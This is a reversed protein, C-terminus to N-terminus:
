NSEATKEAVVDLYCNGSVSVKWRDVALVTGKLVRMLLKSPAERFEVVVEDGVELGHNEDWFELEWTHSKTPVDEGSLWAARSLWVGTQPLLRNAEGVLRQERRNGGVAVAVPHTLLDALRARADTQSEATEQVRGSGEVLPTINWLGDTRREIRGLPSGAPSKVVGRQCETPGLWEVEPIYDRQQPPLIDLTSLYYRVAPDNDQTLFQYANALVSNATANGIDLKRRKAEALAARWNPFGWLWKFYSDVEVEKDSGPSYGLEAGHDNVLAGKVANEVRDGVTRLSIGPIFLQRLARLLEGHIKLSVKNIIEDDLPQEIEWYRMANFARESGAASLYAEISKLHTFGKANPRFGYFQVADDFAAELFEAAYADCDKLKQFNRWLDHIQDFTGGSDKVLAKIGREISLHAVSGRNMIQAVTLQPIMDGKVPTADLINIVDEVFYRITFRQVTDM